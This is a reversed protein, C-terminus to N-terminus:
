ALFSLKLGTESILFLLLDQPRTKTGFEFFCIMAEAVRLSTDRCNFPISIIHFIDTAPLAPRHWGSRWFEDRKRIGTQWNELGSVSIRTSFVSGARQRM